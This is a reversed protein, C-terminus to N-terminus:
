TSSSGDAPGADRGVGLRQERREVPQLRRAVRQEDDLVLEVHDAAGVPDDVDAGGGALM